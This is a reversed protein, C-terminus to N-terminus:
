CAGREGVGGRLVSASVVLGPAGTSRAVTVSVPRAARDETPQELQPAFSLSLARFVWVRACTRFCVRSRACACVRADMCEAVHGLSPSPPPSLSLTLPLSLSMSFSLSPRTRPGARARVSRVEETRIGGARGLRQRRLLRALVALLPM